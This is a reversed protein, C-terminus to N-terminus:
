LVISGDRDANRSHRRHAGPSSNFRNCVRSTSSPVGAIGKCDHCTIHAQMDELDELRQESSTTALEKELLVNLGLKGKEKNNLFTEWADDSLGDLTSEVSAGITELVPKLLSVNKKIAAVTLSQWAKVAGTSVSRSRDVTLTTDFQVFEGLGGCTECAGFPSNFSFSRPEVEAYNIDCTPCTYKTSILSEQWEGARESDSPTLWCCIVQGDSSIRVANDIAELLRAEIGERIIIRDTVAEISHTESPALVPVRDIDHVEGNVRVRVLRERRIMAWSM